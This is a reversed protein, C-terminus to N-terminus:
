ARALTALATVEREFFYQPDDGKGLALVASGSAVLVEGQYEVLSDPAPLTLEVSALDLLSNPRLAGDMSPGTVAASGRGWFDDLRRKLGDIM